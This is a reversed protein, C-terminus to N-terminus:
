GNETARKTSRHLSRAGLSHSMQESHGLKRVRRYITKRNCGLKRAAATMTKATQMAELLAADSFKLGTEPDRAPTGNRLELLWVIAFAQDVADAIQRNIGALYRLREGIEFASAANRAQELDNSRTRVAAEAILLSLRDACM